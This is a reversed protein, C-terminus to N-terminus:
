RQRLEVPLRMQGTEDIRVGQPPSELDLGPPLRVELPAEAPGASRGRLERVDLLLFVEEPRVERATPRMVVLPLTKPCEVVLDFEQPLVLNVPVAEIRTSVRPVSVRVRVRM